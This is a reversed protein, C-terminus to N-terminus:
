HRFLVFLKIETNVNSIRNYFLVFITIGNLLLVGSCQKAQRLGVSRNSAVFTTTHKTNIITIIIADFGVTYSFLFLCNYVTNIPQNHFSFLRLCYNGVLEGIDVLEGYQLGFQLVSGLTCATQLMVTTIGPLCVLPYSQTSLGM